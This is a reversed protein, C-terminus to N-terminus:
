EETSSESKHTAPGSIKSRVLTVEVEEDQGGGVDGGRGNQVHKETARDVSRTSRKSGGGVYKFVRGFKHRELFQEPLVLRYLPLKFRM